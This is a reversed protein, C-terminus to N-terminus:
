LVTLWAVSSIFPTVIMLAGLGIMLIKNMNWLALTRLTLNVQLTNNVIGFTLSFVSFMCQVAMIFTPSFWLQLQTIGRCFQSDHIM